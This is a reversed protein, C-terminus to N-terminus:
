REILGDKILHREQNEVERYAEDWTDFVQPDGYTNRESLLWSDIAAEQTYLIVRVTFKGSELVETHVCAHQKTLDARM